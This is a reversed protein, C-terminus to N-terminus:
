SGSLVSGDLALEEANMGAIPSDQPMPITYRMLANGPRVTIERVFTTVFASRESMESRSSPTWGM